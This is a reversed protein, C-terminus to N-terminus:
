YAGTISVETCDSAVVVTVHWPEAGTTSVETCDSAVVVTVHWAAHM